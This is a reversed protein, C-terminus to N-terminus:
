DSRSYCKAIGKALLIRALVDSRISQMRAGSAPPRRGDVNKRDGRLGRFVTGTSRPSWVTRSCMASFGVICADRSTTTSAVDVTASVTADMRAAASRTLSTPRTQTLVPPAILPYTPADSSSSAAGSWPM